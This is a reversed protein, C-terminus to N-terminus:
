RRRLLCIVRFRECWLQMNPSFTGRRMFYARHAKRWYALTRDGEGEDFAFAEDVENFRRTTLEVTELVAVPMGSGHLMVMQKGVHTQQGECVPWCTASKLGAVVLEALSDAMQPTDGFSFRELANWNTPGIGMREALSCLSTIARVSGSRWV